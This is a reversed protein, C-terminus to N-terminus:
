VLFKPEEKIQYKLIKRDLAQRSINLIRAAKSKNFKSQQLVNSITTKEVSDLEFNEIVVQANNASGPCKHVSKMYRYQLVNDDCLIMAQEIVNRLERVNGPFPYDTLKEYVKKEVGIINKELKKAFHQVFYNILEPIDEKRERLPPIHIQFSNLRHFLDTRFRKEQVMEDLRQNTAAVIRLDLSIEKKAGIRSIIKDDLVRLFKAQVSLPLEGVEDLFLTGHHSIEFWGSTSEFAGTFSGKKHGFFESEFLTEPIASCNVSHFFNDRRKSMAHISRAILEKGTGSEGTILVTTSETDAVRSVINIIERMSPSVGVIELGYKDKLHTSVLSYNLEALRQKNISDAFKHTRELSQRIEALSFPKTLFDDAGVRLADIVIEMDGNGTIAVADVNIYREKIQQIVQIGSMEPLFVDVLAVDINQEDLIGFAQSPSEATFATHGIENFYDGLLTRFIAEDDLVLIRLADM